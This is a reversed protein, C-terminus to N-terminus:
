VGIKEHTFNDIVSFELTKINYYKKIKGKTVGDQSTVVANKERWAILNPNPTSALHNSLSAFTQELENTTSDDLSENPNEKAYSSVIENFDVNLKVSYTIRVIKQAFTQLVSLLFFLSFLYVKLIHLKFFM